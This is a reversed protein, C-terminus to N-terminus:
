TMGAAIKEISYPGYTDWDLFDGPFSQALSGSPRL